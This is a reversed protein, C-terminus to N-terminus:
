AGQKPYNSIRFVSCNGINKTKIDMKVIFFVAKTEKKTLKASNNPRRVHVKAQVQNPDSSGKEKNVKM